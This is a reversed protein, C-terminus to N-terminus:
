PLIPKEKPEFLGRYPASKGRPEPDALKDKEAEAKRHSQEWWAGWQGKRLYGIRHGRLSLVLGGLWDVWVRDARYEVLGWTTQVEFWKM